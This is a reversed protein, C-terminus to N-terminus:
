LRDQPHVMGFEHLNGLRECAYRWRLTSNCFRANSVEQSVLRDPGFAAISGHGERLFGQCVPFLFHLM